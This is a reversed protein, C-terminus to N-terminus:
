HDLMQSHKLNPGSPATVGYALLVPVLESMVLARLKIKSRILRPLEKILSEMVDASTDRRGHAAFNWTTWIRADGALVRQRAADIGSSESHRASESANGLDM